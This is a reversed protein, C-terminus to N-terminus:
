YSGHIHRMSRATSALWTIHNPNGGQHNVGSLMKARLYGSRAGDGEKKRCVVGVIHVVQM